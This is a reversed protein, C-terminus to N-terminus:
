EKKETLITPTSAALARFAVIKAYAKISELVEEDEGNDDDFLATIEGIAITPEFASEPLSDIIAHIDAESLVKAVPQPKHVTCGLGCHYCEYQTYESTAAKVIAPQPSAPAAALAARLDAIEAEMAHELHGVAFLNRDATEPFKERLREQWTKIPLEAPASDQASPACGNHARWFRQLVARETPCGDSEKCSGEPIGQHNFEGQIIKTAM